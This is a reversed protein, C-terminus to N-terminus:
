SGTGESEDCAARVRSRTVDFCAHVFEMQPNVSNLTAPNDSVCDRWPSHTGESEAMPTPRNDEKPAGDAPREFSKQIALRIPTVENTM